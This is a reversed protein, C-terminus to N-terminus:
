AASSESAKTIVRARPLDEVKRKGANLDNLVNYMHQWSDVGGRFGLYPEIFVVAAEREEKTSAFWGKTLLHSDLILYAGRQRSGRDPVKYWFRKGPMSV